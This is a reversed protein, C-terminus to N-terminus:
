ISYGAVTTAGKLAALPSTRHLDPATGCSHDSPIRESLWLVRWPRDRLVKALFPTPSLHCM